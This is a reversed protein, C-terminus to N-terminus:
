KFDGFDFNDVYDDFSPENNFKMSDRKIKAEILNKQKEWKPDIPKEFSREFYYSITRPAHFLATMIYSKANKNIKYINDNNNLSHLVYEIHKKELLIYNNYVPIFPINTKSIRFDSIVFNNTLVECIYDYILNIAEHKDKHKNKLQELSIKDAIEQQTYIKISTDISDIPSATETKNNSNPTEPKQNISVNSNNSFNNIPVSNIITDENISDGKKGDGKISDGKKGIPANNKKNFKATKKPTKVSKVIDEKKSNPSKIKDRRRNQLATGIVEDPNQNLVYDCINFKGNDRRQIPIIYNYQILQNYYRYYTKESINLHYLINKKEPFVTDGSGAYSALYCYISKAKIDLRNDLMVAKPLIGYGYADISNSIIKKNDKNKKTFDIVKKPNSIITYINHSKIDSPNSKEVTIYGHEILANYHKYYGNKSLKLSYLITDRGPFTETGNGCLSCFYGYIAKSELTLDRDHMIFKPITGFGKAKIGDHRIIDALTRTDKTLNTKKM